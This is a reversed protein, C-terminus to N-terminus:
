EFVYDYDELIFDGPTHSVIMYDLAQAQYFENYVLANKDPAISQTTSSQMTSISTADVTGSDSFLNDFAFTSVVDSTTATSSLEEVLIDTKNDTKDTKNDIKHDVKHNDISPSILINNLSVKVGLSDPSPSPMPNPTYLDVASSVKRKKEVPDSSTPTPPSVTFGTAISASTAISLVDATVSASVLGKNVDRTRKKGHVLKYKGTPVKELATAPVIFYKIQVPSVKVIRKLLECPVNMFTTIFINTPLALAKEIDKVEWEVQYSAEDKSVQVISMDIRIGSTADFDFSWRQFNRGNNPYTKPFTPQTEDVPIEDGLSVRIGVNNLQITSFDIRAIKKKEVVVVDAANFKNNMSSKIVRRTRIADQTYDMYSTSQADTLKYHELLADFFAKNISPNFKEGRKKPNRGHKGLRGELEWYKRRLPLTIRKMHAVFVLM